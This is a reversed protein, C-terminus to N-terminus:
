ARFRRTFQFTRVESYYSDLLYLFSFHLTSKNSQNPWSHHSSHFLANHQCLSVFLLVSSSQPGSGSRKYSSKVEHELSLLDKEMIYEIFLCSWTLVCWLLIGTWQAQTVVSALCTILDVHKDEWSIADQKAIKTKVMIAPTLTSSTKKSLLVHPLLCLLSQTNFLGM